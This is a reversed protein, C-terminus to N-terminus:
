VGGRWVDRGARTTKGVVSGGTPEVLTAEDTKLSLGVPVAAPSLLKLSSNAM